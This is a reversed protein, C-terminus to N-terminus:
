WPQFYLLWIKPTHHPRTTDFGALERGATFAIAAHARSSGQRLHGPVPLFASETCLRLRRYLGSPLFNPAAIVPRHKGHATLSGYRRHYRTCHPNMATMRRQKNDGHSGAGRCVEAPTNDNLPRRSSRGKDMSAARLTAGPMGSRYKEKGWGNLREDM